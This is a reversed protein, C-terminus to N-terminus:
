AAGGLMPKDDNPAIPANVDAAELHATKPVIPVDGHKWWTARIDPSSSRARSLRGLVSALAQTRIVGYLQRKGHPWSFGVDAFRWFNKAGDFDLLHSVDGSVDSVESLRTNFDGDRGLVELEFARAVRQVYPRLIDLALDRASNRAESIKAGASQPRGNM